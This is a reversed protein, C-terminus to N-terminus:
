HGFWPIPAGVTVAFNPDYDLEPSSNGTDNVTGTWEGAGQPPPGPPPTQARCRTLSDNVTPITATKFIFRRITGVIAHRSNM